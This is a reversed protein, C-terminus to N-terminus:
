SRELRTACDLCHETFPVAELREANIASSCEDCRGYSGTELRRFAAMVRLLERRSRDGLRELVDDFERETGHEEFSLNGAPDLTALQEQVGNSRNLIDNAAERLRQRAKNQEDEM